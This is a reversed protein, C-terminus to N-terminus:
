CLQKLSLSRKLKALAYRKRSVVTHWSAGTIRAVDVLELGQMWLVVVERQDPPLDRLAQGVREHSQLRACVQEPTESDEDPFDLGNADLSESHTVEHHRTYEDFYRNRAVTYLYTRFSANASAFYRGAEAVEILRMWTHQSIDEAAAPNLSLKLVFRYLGDRHRAFLEEFARVDGEDQFRLMLAQDDSAQKLM